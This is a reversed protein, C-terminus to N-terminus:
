KVVLSGKMGLQEHDGVSCFFRYSGPQLKVATTADKGATIVPTSGIENGDKEVVLDHGLSGANHLEIELSLRHGGTDVTVSKPNFSYERATVPLPQGAKLTVAKGGGGGGGGGCGALAVATLLLCATGTRRM